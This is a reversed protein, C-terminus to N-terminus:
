NDNSLALRSLPSMSFGLDQDSRQVILSEWHLKIPTVQISSM